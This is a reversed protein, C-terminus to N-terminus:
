RKGTNLPSNADFVDSTILDPYQVGGQTLASEMTELIVISESWPMTSSEKKGDRICRACEDAEWFMGHGWNNRKPDQPIPCEVLEVQGKGDKKIVSYETPRYAPGKVQIEGGAGQIRIAPGGTYLGDLDTGVRLSTMAIGMAKSKPFQCIITTMEDTGTDYKNIASVVNPVEKDEEAKLHYLTQFVWTLSYIGLDLLAGGALDPNVMRHSDPFDIRGNPLDNGFSLDATVRYVPGIVGSQIMERIKISLPFFRTWVAEMFFVNKERAAEILKKTQSATVTLAKECLVNKGAQIALMANQFHHSHPTAVYIIDVNPDAVLEAYSGYSKASAPGDIKKIFDAARQSSTSSAVAVIEHCVDDVERAAPNTLLDQTFNEAIGGTALIGWKLTFPAM